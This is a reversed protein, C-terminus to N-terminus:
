HCTYSINRQSGALNQQLSFLNNEQTYTELLGLKAEPIVSTKLAMMLLFFIEVIETKKTTLFAM